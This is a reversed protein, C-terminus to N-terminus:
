EVKVAFDDIRTYYAVPQNAYLGVYNLTPTFGGPISVGSEEQVDNIWLDVTNNAADYRLKVRHYVHEGNWDTIPRQPTPCSSSGNACIRYEGAPHIRVYIQGKGASWWGSSTDISFGIAAWSSSRPRVDAEVIAVDGTEDFPISALMNGGTVGTVYGDNTGTVRRLLANSNAVWTAGGFELPRGNLPENTTSTFTDDAIIQEGGGPDDPPQECSTCIRWDVSTLDPGELTLLYFGLDEEPPIGRGYSTAGAVWFSTDPSHVIEPFVQHNHGAFLTPTQYLDMLDLLDTRGPEHLNYWADAETRSFIYPVYHVFLIATRGENQTAQLKSDLWAHQASRLPSGVLDTRYYHSVVGVFRIWPTVDLSYYPVDPDFGNPMEELWWDLEEASHGIDHNGPIAHWPIAPDLENMIHLFVDIEVQSGPTDVIDGAILVAEPAPSLGEIMELVESLNLTRQHDLCQVFTLGVCDIQTDAMVVVTKPSPDGSIQFQRDFETENVGDDAIVTLVHAGPLLVDADLTGRWGVNPCNPDNLDGHATCVGPRSLGYFFDPIVIPSGDIEFRVGAVGSADTAWGSVLYNGSITQNHGPADVYMRPGEVDGGSNQIDFQRNFIATYGASSTASVRLTHPGNDFATTALTGSWGVNPCNPDGLDGHAVCVQPRPIGYFYGSLNVPTGDVAFTVSAVGASDTAWGSVLFDGSVTQNHGPADVYMRPGRSESIQSAASAATVLNLLTLTALVTPMWHRTNM